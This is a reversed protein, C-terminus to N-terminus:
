NVPHRPPIVGGSDSGDSGAPPRVSASASSPRHGRHLHQLIEPSLSLSSRRQHLSVCCLEGSKEKEVLNPPSDKGM